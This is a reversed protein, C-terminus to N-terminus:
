SHRKFKEKLKKQVGSNAEILERNRIFYNNKTEVQISDDDDPNMNSSIFLNPYKNEIKRIKHLRYYLMAREQGNFKELKNKNVISSTDNQNEVIPDM